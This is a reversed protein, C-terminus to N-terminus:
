DRCKDPTGPNLASRIAAANADVLKGVGSTTSAPAAEGRCQTPGAEPAAAQRESKPEPESAPEAQRTRFTKKSM